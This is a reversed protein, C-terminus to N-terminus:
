TPVYLIEMKKISVKFILYWNISTVSFECRLYLTWIPQYVFMYMKKTIQTQKGLIIQGFSILTDLVQCTYVYIKVRHVSISM